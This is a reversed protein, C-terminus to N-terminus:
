RRVGEAVVWHAPGDGSWLRTRRTVGCRTECLAPFGTPFSVANLPGVFIAKVVKDLTFRRTGARTGRRAPVGIRAFVTAEGDYVIGAVRRARGDKPRGGLKM